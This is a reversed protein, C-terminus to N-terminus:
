RGGVDAYRGGIGGGGAADTTPKDRMVGAFDDRTSLMDVDEAFSVCRPLPKAVASEAEPYCSEPVKGPPAGSLPISLRLHTLRTIAM